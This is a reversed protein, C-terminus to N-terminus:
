FADIGVGQLSGLKKIIFDIDKKKNFISGHQPAIMEIDLKKIVDMAHRLAKESPMVKKHFEFIDPLPCYKKRKICRDYDECVYCADELEVFLEWQRSLSGFLDSSFLTKTRTDYTVFSGANHAYPTKFFRLTREGFNFVLGHDDISRLLARKEQEIYYSIFMNNNPESLVILEPNNCIDVMNSLSGCLDPDVHHYILALIQEPAIGTQLIKMMVVAFDPRSGADIVVAHDGEVMLYPNCHLNSLKEHFGVWFIKDAIEIPRDYSQQHNKPEM